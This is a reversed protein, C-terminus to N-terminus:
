YWVGGVEASNRTVSGNSVPIVVNVTSNSVRQWTVQSSALVGAGVTGTGGLLGSAYVIIASDSMNDVKAQDAAPAMIRLYNRVYRANKSSLVNNQTLLADIIQTKDDSSVGGSASMGGIAAQGAPLSPAHYDVPPLAPTSVTPALTQTDVSFPIDFPIQQVPLSVIGYNVLVGLLGLLASFCALIALFLSFPHHKRLRASVETMITPNKEFAVFAKEIEAVPYGISTLHAMIQEKSSSKASESRIYNLLEIQNM